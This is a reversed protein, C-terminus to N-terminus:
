SYLEGGNLGHQELFRQKRQLESLRENLDRLECKLREVDKWKHIIEKRAEKDLGEVARFFTRYAGTNKMFDNSIPANELAILENRDEMREETIKELMEKDLEEREKIEAQVEAIRKQLDEISEQYNPLEGTNILEEEM